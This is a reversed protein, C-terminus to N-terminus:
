KKKPRETGEKYKVFGEKM